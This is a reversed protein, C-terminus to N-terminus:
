LSARSDARIPAAPVACHRSTSCPRAVACTRSLGPSGQRDAAGGPTAGTCRRRPDAGLLHLRDDGVAPWGLRGGGRRVADATDEGDRREATQPQDGGDARGTVPQAQERERGERGLQGGSVLSLAERQAPDDGRLEQRREDETGERPRERVPEVPAPHHDDAVEQAEPQEQRDRQDARQPPQEHGRQEDLDARQEPDRGLVRRHRVQQAARVLDLRRVLQRQHHGVADRDDGRGPQERHDGPQAREQRTLGRLDRRRVDCQDEVAHGVQERGRRDPEPDALDGPARLLAALHGGSQDRQQPVAGPEHRTGRQDATQDIPITPAKAAPPM